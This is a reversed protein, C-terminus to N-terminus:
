WAKTLWSPSRKTMRSKQHGASTVIPVGTVATTGGIRGPLLGSQRTGAQYARPRNKKTCEAVRSSLEPLMTWVTFLAGIRTQNPCNLRQAKDIRPDHRGPDTLRGSRCGIVVVVAVAASDRRRRKGRAGRNTQRPGARMLDTFREQLIVGNGVYTRPGRVILRGAMGAM